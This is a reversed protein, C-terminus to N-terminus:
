QGVKVLLAVLDEDVQRHLLALAVQLVQDVEHPEVELVLQPLGLHQVRDGVELVVVQNPHEVLPDLQQLRGSEDTRQHLLHQLPYLVEVLVVDHVAVDLGVVDQEVAEEADLDGVEAEGLLEHLLHLGVVGLGDLPADAPLGALDDEVLLVVHVLVRVLRLLHVDEAEAADEVVEDGDAVVGEALAVLALLLDELALEVQPENPGLEHLLPAVLELVHDLHHDLLVGAQPGLGALDDVVDEEPAVVLLELEDLLNAVLELVEAGGEGVGRPLTESAASAEVELPRSGLGLRSLLLHLHALLLLGNQLQLGLQVLDTLLVPDHALQRPPGPLQVGRQHLLELLEPLIVRRLQGVEEAEDPVLLVVNALQRFLALLQQPLGVVGEGGVEDPLEGLEHDRDVLERAGLEDLVGDEALVVLGVLLSGM